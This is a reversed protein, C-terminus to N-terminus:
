ERDDEEERAPAEALAARGAATIVWGWDSPNSCWRALGVAELARLVKGAPRAFHQPQRNFGQTTAFWLKAGLWGVRRPTDDLIGLMRRQINSLDPM